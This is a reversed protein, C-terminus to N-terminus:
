PVVKGKILHTADGPGKRVDSALLYFSSGAAAIDMPANGAHSKEAVKVNKGWSEGDDTSAAMYVGGRDDDWCAVLEGTELRALRLSSKHRHAPDDDILVPKEWRRGGDSSVYLRIEQFTQPERMSIQKIGAIYVAGLYLTDNGEALCIEGLPGVNQLAISFNAGRDDSIALWYGGEKKKYHRMSFYACYLTGDAGVCISPTGSGGDKKDLDKELCSNASWSAGRDSSSAFYVDEMIGQGASGAARRRGELWAIYVDSGSVATVPNRRQGKQSDNVYVPETWSRGGDSSRSFMIAKFVQPTDAEYIGAVWTMCLNDREDIALDYGWVGYTVFSSIRSIEQWTAGDDASQFVAIADRAETASPFGSHIFLTMILTGRSTRVLGPCVLESVKVPGGVELFTRDRVEPEHKGCSATWLVLFTFFLLFTSSAKM